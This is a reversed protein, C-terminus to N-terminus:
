IGGTLDRAIREPKVVLGILLGVISIVIAGLLAAWFDDVHFELDSFKGVLWSALGLFAANLVLLFLGLTLITLPLTLLTILPRVYLNLLGLVLAVVLISDWGDYRIGAVLEAAVWVAFSLLLWRIALVLVRELSM